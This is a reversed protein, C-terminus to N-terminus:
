EEYQAHRRAAEWAAKAANFKAWDEDTIPPDAPPLLGLKVVWEDLLPIDYTLIADDCEDSRAWYVVATIAELIDESVEIKMTKEEM